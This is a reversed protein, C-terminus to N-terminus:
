YSICSIDTIVHGPAHQTLQSSMNIPPQIPPPPTGFETNLLFFQHKNTIRYCPSGTRIHQSAIRICHSIIPVSLFWYFGILILFIWYASTRYTVLIHFNAHSVYNDCEMILNWHLTCNQDSAMDCEGPYAMKWILKEKKNFKFKLTNRALFYM